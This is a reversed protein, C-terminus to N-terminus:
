PVTLRSRARSLAGRADEFTCRGDSTCRTVGAEVQSPGTPGRDLRLVVGAAAGAVAALVALVPVVPRM